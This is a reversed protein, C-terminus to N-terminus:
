CSDLRRHVMSLTTLLELLEADTVTRLLRPDHAVPNRYLGSLGKLLNAFGKQEDRETSTALRNIKLPPENHTGLSFADDILAATDGTCGSLDRIRQMVGKVAEAMAHFYSRTLLEQTCYKLVEPHTNRRRLETRLTDALEAAQSLTRAVAGNAVQGSDIIRLGAFALRQNLDDQRRSFLGPDDVYRSPHMATTLFTVLRDSGGTLRQHELLAASLRDRKSATPIVDNIGLRALLSGIETGTL